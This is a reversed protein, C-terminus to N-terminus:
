LFDYFSLTPNGRKSWIQRKELRETESFPLVMQSTKLGSVQSDDKIERKGKEEDRANLRDGLLVTGM